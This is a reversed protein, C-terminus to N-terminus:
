GQPLILIEGPQIVTSRLHNLAEIEAIRADVNAGPFHNEAIAWLTQGPRVVATGAAAPRAGGGAALAAWVALGVAAVMVLLLVHGGVHPRRRAHLPPALDAIM